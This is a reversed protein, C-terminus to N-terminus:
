LLPLTIFLTGAMVAGALGVTGPSTGATGEVPTGATTEGLTTDGLAGAAGAAAELGAAGAM